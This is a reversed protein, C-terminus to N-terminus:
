AVCCSSTSIIITISGDYEFDPAMITLNITATSNPTLSYSLSPSTSILYFEGFPEVEVANISYSYSLFKGTTLGLAYTFIGDEKVAISASRYQSSPGLYSLGLAPPGMYSISINVGTVKVSDSDTASSVTSVVILAIM